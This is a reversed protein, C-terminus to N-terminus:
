RAPSRAPVAGSSARLAHGKVSRHVLYGLAGISGLFPLALLYPLYPLGRERADKRMWVSFCGLAVFLDLLMQMAWPERWAVTLFGFYGHDLAVLSSYLTFAVLVLALLTTKMRGLHPDSTMSAMVESTM